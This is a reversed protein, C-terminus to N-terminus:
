LVGLNEKLQEISSAGIVPIVSPNHNIIYSLVYQNPTIKDQKSKERIKLIEERNAMSNFSGWLAKDDRCYAGWLLSTHAMPIIDERKCIELIKDDLAEWCMQDFTKHDKVKLLTFHNQIIKPKIWNNKNCLEIIKTLRLSNYNSVGWNLIKGESILYQFTNITDELKKSKDDLHALYYDIYDTKLNELSKDCESRIVNQDLGHEVSGYGFGVKSIIKVKERNKRLSHWKGIVRESDGGVGNKEWAAYSNASDIITGGNQYFYDLFKLSTETDFKTGYYATGIAILGSNGM